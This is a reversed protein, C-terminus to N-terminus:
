FNFALQQGKEKVHNTTKEIILKTNDCLPAKDEVKNNMQYRFQKEGIQTKVCSCKQCNWTRLDYREWLHRGNFTDKQSLVAGTEPDIVM